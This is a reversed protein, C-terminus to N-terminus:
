ILYLTHANIFLHNAPTLTCPPPCLLPQPQLLLLFFFSHVHGRFAKCLCFYLLLVKINMVRSWVPRDSEHACPFMLPLCPPLSSLSILSFAIFATFSFHPPSYFNATLNSYLAIELEIVSCM